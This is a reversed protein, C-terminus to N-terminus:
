LKVIWTAVIRLTVWLSSMLGVMMPTGIAVVAIKQNRTWASKPATFYTEIRDLQAVMGGNRTVNGDIDTVPKGELVVVIREVKTELEIIRDTM